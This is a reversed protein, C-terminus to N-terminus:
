LNLYESKAFQDFIRKAFNQCNENLLRYKKNLEANSYFWNVLEEMKMRGKDSKMEKIPNNRITRRYRNRVFDLKKSRQITIGETNKEISWWWENTELVTFAHYLMFMTLQVSYLPCKYVFIQQIEENTDILSKLKEKLDEQTINYVTGTDKDSEPDFYIKSKWENDGSGSGSKSDSASESSGM